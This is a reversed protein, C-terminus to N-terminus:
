SKHNANTRLTPRVPVEWASLDSSTDTAGSWNKSRTNAPQTFRWWRSILRWGCRCGAAVRDAPRARADPDTSFSLERYLDLGPSCGERRVYGVVVGEHDPFDERVWGM